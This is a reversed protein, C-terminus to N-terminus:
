GLGLRRKTVAILGESQLAQLAADVRAGGFAPECRRRAEV